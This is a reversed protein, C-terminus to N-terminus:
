REITRDNKRAITSDNYILVMVKQASLNITMKKNM